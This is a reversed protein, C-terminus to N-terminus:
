KEDFACYLYACRAAYTVFPYKNNDLITTWGGGTLQTMKNPSAQAIRPQNTVHCEDVIHNTTQKVYFKNENIQVHIHSNNNSM